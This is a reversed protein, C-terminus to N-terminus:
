DHFIKANITSKKESMYPVVVGEPNYKIPYAPTGSIPAINLHFLNPNILAYLVPSMVAGAWGNV